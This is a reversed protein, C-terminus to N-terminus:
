PHPVQETTSEEPFIERYEKIKYQTKLSQMLKQEQKVFMSLKELVLIHKISSLKYHVASHPLNKAITIRNRFLDNNKILHIATNYEIDAADVSGTRLINLGIMLDRVPISKINFNEIPDLWTIATYGFPIAVKKIDTLEVHKNEITVFTASIAELLTASYINPFRNSRFTSWAPNDPFIFDIAGVDMAPQLKTMPMSVFEFEINNAEGFAKLVAWGFGKDGTNVASYVPYKNLYSVGVKFTRKKDSNAGENTNANQQVTEQELAVAQEDAADQGFALGCVAAYALLFYLLAILRNHRLISNLRSPSHAM